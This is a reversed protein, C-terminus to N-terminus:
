APVGEDEDAWASAARAPVAAFGARLAAENAALHQTRYPPVLRSMALILPDLGVIDTIAAYAALLVYGASMPAALDNAIRGAPVM